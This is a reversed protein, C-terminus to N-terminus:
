KSSKKSISKGNIRKYDIYTGYIWLIVIFVWIISLFIYTLNM